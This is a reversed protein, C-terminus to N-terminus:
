PAEEADAEQPGPATEGAGAPGKAEGPLVEYLVPVGAPGTPGFPELRAVDRVWPPVYDPHDSVVFVRREGTRVREAVDAGAGWYWRVSRDFKAEYPGVVLVDPRRDELDQVYRLPPAATTDPLVVAEPPAASLAADAFQRASQESCKWPRLWYVYSDRYPLRRGFVDLEARRAAGPLVAYVGVPVLALAVLAATWRRGVLAVIRGSGVGILVSSLAYFPVLFSFQDPVDYRAAWLFYMAALVLVLLAPGDRRRLSVWVGVPMVLLLPTPHNLGVYLASRGLLEGLGAVNGVQGGFGGVTGSLLTEGLSGTRAYEIGLVIWYLTGGALWAGAGAPVIWAPARRRVVEVVVWVGLVALSLSAMLHNSIALGNAAFLWVLYVPRRTRHWAVACLLEATLFAAAWGLVEAMAAYLWVTHGVAFVVGAVAGATRRGTLWYALLAVNAAALGTGIASCLNAARAYGWWGSWALTRGALLFWPHVRVAEGPRCWASYEDPRTPLRQAPPWTLRGVNWQYEGSDQWVLGPALTAVYLALAAVFAVAWLRGGRLREEGREPGVPRPGRAESQTHGVDSEEVPSM